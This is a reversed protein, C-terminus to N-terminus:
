ETDETISSFPRILAFCLQGTVSLEPGRQAEFTFLQRNRGCKRTTEEVTVAEYGEDELWERAAAVDRPFFYEFLFIAAVALAINVLIGVLKGM